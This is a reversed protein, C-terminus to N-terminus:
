RRVSTGFPPDDPYLVCFPGKYNPDLCRQEHARRDKRQHETNCYHAVIRGPVQRCDGCSGALNKTAGCHACLNFRFCSFRHQAEWDAARCAENCYWLDKGRCFPCQIM